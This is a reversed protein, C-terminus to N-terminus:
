TGKESSFGVQNDREGEELHQSHKEENKLFGCKERVGGNLFFCNQPQSIEDLFLISKLKM